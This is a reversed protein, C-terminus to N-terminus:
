IHLISAIDVRLWGGTEIGAVAPVARAVDERTTRAM